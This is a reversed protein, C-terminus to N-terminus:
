HEIHAPHRRSASAAAATDSRHRLPAGAYDPLQKNIGIFCNSM